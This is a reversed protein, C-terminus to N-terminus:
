SIRSGHAIPCVKSSVMVFDEFTECGTAIFSFRQMGGINDHYSIPVVLDNSIVAESLWLFHDHCVDSKFVDGVHGDIPVSLTTNSDIGVIVDRGGKHKSLVSTFNVWWEEASPHGRHPAHGSVIIANLVPSSVAVVLM